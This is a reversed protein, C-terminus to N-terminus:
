SRRRPDDDPYIEGTYPDFMFGFNTGLRGGLETIFSWRADHNAMGITQFYNEMVQDEVDEGSEVLQNIIWEDLPLGIFMVIELTERHERALIGIRVLNLFTDRAIDDFGNEKLKTYIKKISKAALAAGNANNVELAKEAFTAYVFLLTYIKDKLNSGNEREQILMLRRLVVDIADFFIFPYANPLDNDYRDSFSLLFEYFDDFESRYGFNRMIPSEELLIRILLREGLWGIDIFIDELARTRIIYQDKTTDELLSNFLMNGVIHYFHIIEQFIYSSVGISIDATDKWFKLIQKLEEYYNGKILELCYNLSAKLIYKKSVDLGEKNAIELLIKQNDIFNLTFERSLVSEPIWEEPLDMKSLKDVFEISKLSFLNISESLSSIESHKIFQIAMDRLPQFPDESKITKTKISIIKQKLTEQQGEEKFDIELRPVSGLNTINNEDPEIREYNVKINMPPKLDSISWIYNRIKRYDIRASLLFIARDPHLYTINKSILLVFFFISIFILSICSLGYYQNLIIENLRFNITPFFNHKGILLFYSGMSTLLLDIFSLLYFLILYKNTLISDILKYSFKSHVLQIFVLIVASIIGFIAIEIGLLTNFFNLFNDIM